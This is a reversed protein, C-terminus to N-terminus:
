VTGFGSAEIIDQIMNETFSEGFYRETVPIVIKLTCTSSTIRRGFDSCDHLFVIKGKGLSLPPLFKSGSAFFLIDELKIVIKSNSQIDTIGIDIRDTSPVLGKEAEDLFNCWNFMIDGEQQREVTGDESFECQFMERLIKATLHGSEYVFQKVADEGHRRLMELVGNSELGKEFSNLERLQRTIAWHSSIKAICDAKDELSIIPKNYGAEFREDLNSVIADLQAQDNCSAMEELKVRLDYDPVDDYSAENSRLILYNALSASFNRPGSFGHLFALSALKGFMEFHGKKLKLVDHQFVYRKKRAACLNRLSGMM